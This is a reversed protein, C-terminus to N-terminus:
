KKGVVFPTKNDSKKKPAMTIQTKSVIMQNKKPAVKKENESQLWKEFISPEKTPEEMENEEKDEKADELAEEIAAVPKVAKSGFGQAMKAHMSDILKELIKETADAAM